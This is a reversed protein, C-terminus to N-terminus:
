SSFHEGLLSGLLAGLFSMFLVFILPPLMSSMSAGVLVVGYELITPISLLITTIGLSLAISFFVFFLTRGADRVILGALFSSFLTIVFLFFMELRLVLVLIFGCAYNISLALIICLSKLILTWTIKEKM